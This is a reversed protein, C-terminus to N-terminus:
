YWTTRASRRRTTGDYVKNNASIGSAITLGAATINATLGVPQSLTYNNAATGGLTLGGVTVGIGNAVDPSRLVRRIAMTTLRVNAVDGSLVGTLVVTNSSITAENNGDYVKNNASIGSAITM